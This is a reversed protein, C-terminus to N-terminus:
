SFIIEVTIPKTSFNNMTFRLQKINNMKCSPLYKTLPKGKARGDKDITELLVDKCNDRSVKISMKKTDDPVTVSHTRQKATIEIKKM